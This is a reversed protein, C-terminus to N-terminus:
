LGGGHTGVHAIASIEVRFESRGLAAIGVTTRSPFIPGQFFERYAADVADIDSIDTLYVTTSVVDRRSAGASDLTRHLNELVQIAQEAAGTGCTFGEKDVPVHGSLYVWKGVIVAPSYPRSSSWNEPSSTGRM